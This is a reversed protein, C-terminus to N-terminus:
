HIFESLDLIHPDSIVIEGIDDGGDSLNGYVIFPKRGDFQYPKSREYAKKLDNTVKELKDFYVGYASDGIWVGSVGKLKTSTPTGDDWVRSARLTEAYEPEVSRIAFFDYDEAIEKMKKAVSEMDESSVKSLDYQREFKEARKERAGKRKAKKKKETTAREEGGIAKQQGGIPNKDEDLPIHNGNVTIWSDPEEDFRDCWKNRITEIRKDTNM